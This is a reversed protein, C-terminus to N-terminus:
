SKIKSMGGDVHIIQSTIWKSKESLLFAAMEALDIPSGIKQLPHNKANAQKKEESSLLKAALPTDTLSPAICNVRITPALEAALARTLGELAGKSAAVQTHFQFGMQVAVTSFFVVAPNKSKKLLPLVAQLVKVAGVVNLEYDTTFEQPQIRAFPKLNISGPCYVLGDLQSPLFDLSLSAEMVDLYHYSVNAHTSDVKTNRYTGFVRQGESLLQETLQKGIGSSAGIILFQKM